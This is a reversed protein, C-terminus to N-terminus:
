LEFSSNAIALAFYCYVILLILLVVSATLWIIKKESKSILLLWIDGVVALLLFGVKFYNQYEELWNASRQFLQNYIPILTLPLIICFVLVKQKKTM